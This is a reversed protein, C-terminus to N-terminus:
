QTGPTSLQDALQLYTRLRKQIALYDDSHQAQIDTARIERDIEERSFLFTREGVVEIYAYRNDLYGIVDFLNMVAFGPDNDDLRLLDRGWSAHEYSGGLIHMLTPVIDTQSGVKDIIHQDTGIIDPAFILLPIHFNARNLRNPGSRLLTHDAVFVFITSDFVPQDIFQSVFQGLAHDAYVQSNYMQSHKVDGDSKRLSSDPLDFPEHHSLTFITTFFPRPLSDIVPVAKEFLIHDPIGWKSFYFEKGFYSDGFFYHFGKQRFFGEVNDFALDGGYIFANTYGRERLIEPLTVFPHEAQYRKMIARGPASPFSCLVGGMGYNSRIGTAYFDTFLIGQTALNDFHPTINEPGGLCGTNEASWSEMLVLIINPAFGIDAPSQDTRRLLSRDPELWQDGEQQLMMQVYALNTAREGFAWGRQDNDRYILRPDHDKEYLSQSLTYIGNLPLQNVFPNDSFYALSWNLGSTGTRGRVGMVVALVFLIFLCTQAPWSRRNPFRTLSRYFHRTVWWIAATAFLWIIIFLTFKSDSLILNWSTMGEDLYEVALFNLHSQFYSFFRIDVLGLLVLLSSALTFYALTARGVIKSSLDLWPLLLLVPIVLYTAITTDFRLGIVFANIITVLPVEGWQDSFNLLFFLRILGQLILAFGLIGLLLLFSRAPVLSKLVSRPSFPVNSM